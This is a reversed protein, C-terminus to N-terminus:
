IPQTKPAEAQGGLYSWNCKELSEDVWNSLWPDSTKVLLPLRGLALLVEFVVMM